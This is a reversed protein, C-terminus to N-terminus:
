KDVDLRKIESEYFMSANYFADWLPTDVAAVRVKHFLEKITRAEDLTGAPNCEITIKM